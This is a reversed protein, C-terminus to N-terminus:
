RIKLNMLKIFSLMDFFFSSDFLDEIKCLKM